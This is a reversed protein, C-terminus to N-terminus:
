SPRALHNPGVPYKFNYQYDPNRKMTDFSKPWHEVFWVLFATVDIKSSYLQEKKLQHIEKLNNINLLEVIKQKAASYSRFNYVLGYNEQDDNYSIRIPNIYVSPTGLVGAESAMTAGEGIYLSAFHLADHMKTVPFPIMYPTLGPPMDREASIFVKMYPLITQVLEEKERISMGSRGIDHSARWASFRLIAFPEHRTLGMDTLVSDDPAFYKPLLYCLEHYGAYKIHKKGFSLPLVDPSIVVDSFPLSLRLQEMNGTDELAIHPKRMMTSVIGAFLSGHSIFVDPKCKLSAWLLNVTFYILSYAKGLFGKRKRGLIFYNFGFHRVHVSESEGEHITFLISHGRLGLYIALNKFLYFDAPHGIDILIKM